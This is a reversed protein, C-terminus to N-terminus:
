NGLWPDFGCEQMPLCLIQGNSWWPLGQVNDEPTLPPGDSHACLIRKFPLPSLTSLHASGAPPPGQTGSYLSQGTQGKHKLSHTPSQYTPGPNHQSCSDLHLTCPLGQSITLPPTRCGEREHIPDLPELHSGSARAPVGDGRIGRLGPIVLPDGGRRSAELSGQLTGLAHPLPLPHM